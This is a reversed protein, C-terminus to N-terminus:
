DELDVLLPPILPKKSKSRSIFCQEEGIGKELSLYISSIQYTFKTAAMSADKQFKSNVLESFVKVAGFIHNKTLPKTYKSNTERM